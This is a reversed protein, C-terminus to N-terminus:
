ARTSFFSFSFISLGTSTSNLFIFTSFLIQEFDIHSLRSFLVTRVAM